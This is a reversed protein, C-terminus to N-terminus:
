PSRPQCCAWDFFYLRERRWGVVRFTRDVLHIIKVRARGEVHGAISWSQQAVVVATIANDNWAPLDHLGGRLYPPVAYPNSPLLTIAINSWGDGAMVTAIFDLHYEIHIGGVM